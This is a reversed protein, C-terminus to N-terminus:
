PGFIIARFQSMDMAFHVCWFWLVDRSRQLVAILAVGLLVDRGLSALEAMGAGGALMAPVHGAAFLLAVVGIATRSSTAAALRVFLVAITIDELLVQCAEDLHPYQLIRAVVVPLGDADRRAITYTMLALLALAAGAALRVPLRRATLWATSLPERRIALVLLVPAFIAVQNLAGLIPAFPGREPLLWGRLFAQGVVLVGAVGLMAAGFARWPREFTASPVAPWVGPVFRNILLWGAMAAGYGTVLAGYHSEIM